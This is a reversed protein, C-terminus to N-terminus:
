DVFCLNPTVNSFLLLHPPLLLELPDLVLSSHAFLPVLDPPVARGYTEEARADVAQEEEERLADRVQGPRPPGVVVSQAFVALELAAWHSALHRSRISKHGHRSSTALFGVRELWGGNRYVRAPLVIRIYKFETRWFLRRQFVPQRKDRGECPDGADRQLPTPLEQNSRGCRPIAFIPNELGGSILGVLARAPGACCDSRGVSM